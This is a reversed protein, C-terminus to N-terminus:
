GKRERERCCVALCSEAVCTFWKQIPDKKEMAVAIDEMGIKEQPPLVQNGCGMMAPGEDNVLTYRKSWECRVRDPIVLRVQKGELMFHSDRDASIAKMPCVKICSQCDECSDSGSYLPDEVLPADTIIAAFRQTVGYEPTLVAGHRGIHGLGAAYAAVANASADLQPDRPNDVFSATNALDLTPIAKFGMSQLWVTMDFLM